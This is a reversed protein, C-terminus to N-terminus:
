NFWYGVGKHYNGSQVPAFDGYLNHTGFALVICERGNITERTPPKIFYSDYVYQNEFDSASVDGEADKTYMTGTYYWSNGIKTYTGSGVTWCPGAPMYSAFNWLRSSVAYIAPLGTLSEAAAAPIPYYFGLRGDSLVELWDSISAELEPSYSGRTGWLTVDKKINTSLFNPEQAIKIASTLFKGGNVLVQDGSAVAGQVNYAGGGMTPQNYTSSYVGDNASVSGTAPNIGFTFPTTPTQLTGTVGFISVDKKINGAVLNADGAVTVKSLTWRHASIVDQDVTTPVFTGGERAGLQYSDSSIGDTATVLGTDSDLHIEVPDPNAGEYTGTVGFISVDKKINGAVMNAEGQVRVDGLTYTGAPVAVYPLTTPVKTSGGQTTLQLEDSTVGDTATVLGTGSNLTIEVPDPTEGGPIALIRAAMESVLMPTDAM